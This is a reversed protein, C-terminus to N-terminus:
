GRTTKMVFLEWFAPHMRRNTTSDCPAEWQQWTRCTTHLMEAAQTQTLGLALRRSKVDDPSPVNGVLPKSRPAKM